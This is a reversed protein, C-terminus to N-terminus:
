HNKFDNLSFSKEGNLIKQYVVLRQYEENQLLDYSKLEDKIKSITLNVQIDKKM